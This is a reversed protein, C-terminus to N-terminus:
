RQTSQSRQTINKQVIKGRRLYLFGEIEMIVDDLHKEVNENTFRMFSIGESELYKQRERDRKQIDIDTHIKGDIEIILKLSHCYFDAIYISIPHQRRFKYGLPKHKLYSWLLIEAHTLNERLLRANEFVNSNAGLFM